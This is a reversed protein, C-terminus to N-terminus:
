LNSLLWIWISNMSVYSNWYTASLQPWASFYQIPNTPPSTHQPATPDRSPAPVPPPPKSPRGAMSKPVAPRAEVTKGKINHHRVDCAIKASQEESFTLFAFGKNVKTVKDVVLHLSDIKGFKSFCERIDKEEIDQMLGGIFIKSSQMPELRDFLEKPYFPKKPYIVPPRGGEEDSRKHAHKVDLDKGDLHFHEKSNIIASVTKEEAFTIFGFRFSFKCTNQRFSISM